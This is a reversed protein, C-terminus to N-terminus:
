VEAAKSANYRVEGGDALTGGQALLLVYWMPRTESWWAGAGHTPAQLQQAHFATSEFLVKFM